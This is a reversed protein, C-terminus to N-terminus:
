SHIDKSFVAGLKRSKNYHNIGLGKLSLIATKFVLKNVKEDRITTYTVTPILFSVYPKGFNRGFCFLVITDDM